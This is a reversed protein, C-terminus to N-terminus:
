GSGAGKPALKEDRLWNKGHVSVASYSQITTRVVYLLGSLGWTESWPVLLKDAIHKNLLKITLKSWRDPGGRGVLGWLHNRITVRHLRKQPTAMYHIFKHIRANPDPCHRRYLNHDPSPNTNNNTKRKQAKFKIQLIPIYQDLHARKRILAAPRTHTHCQPSYVRGATHMAHCQRRYVHGATHIADNM